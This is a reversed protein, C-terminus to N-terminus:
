IRSTIRAYIAGSEKRLNEIQLTTEKQSEKMTEVEMKLDQITKNLEKVQNRTNKQIEKLSKQPESAAGDEAGSL